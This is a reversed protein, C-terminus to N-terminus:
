PVFEVRSVLWEGDKKELETVMRYFRPEGKPVSQNSVNAKVALVVRATGGDISDLGAGTVEGQTAIKSEKVLGIYSDLNQKFLNGFDGTSEEIVRRVDQEATEFNISTLGIAAEQAAELAAQRDAEAARGSNWLLGAVVAAVLMLVFVALVGRRVAPSPGPPAPDADAPHAHAPDADAPDADAPHDDAPHDGASEAGTSGAPDAGTRVPAASPMELREPASVGGASEDEDPPKTARSGLQFTRVM